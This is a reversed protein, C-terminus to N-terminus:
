ATPILEVSSTIVTEFLEFLGPSRCHDKKAHGDILTQMHLAGSSKIKPHVTDKNALSFVMDM